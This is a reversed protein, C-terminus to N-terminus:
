VIEATPGRVKDREGYYLRPPSIEKKILRQIYLHGFSSVIGSCQGVSLYKVWQLSMDNKMMSANTFSRKFYGIPLYGYQKKIKKVWEEWDDHMKAKPLETRLIQVVEPRLKRLSNIQEFHYVYGSGFLLPNDDYYKRLTEDSIEELPQRQDLFQQALLKERYISVNSDLDKQEAENLKNERISALVFNQILSELIKQKETPNIKNEPIGLTKRITQKLDTQTIYIENVKALVNEPIELVTPQPQLSPQQEEQNSCSNIFLLLFIFVLCAFPPICIPKLHVITNQNFMKYGRITSKGPVYFVNAVPLTMEKKSVASVM